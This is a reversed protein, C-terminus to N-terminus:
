RRVEAPMEAVAEVPRRMDDLQIRDPQAGPAHLLEWTTRRMLTQDERSLSVGLLNVLKRTAETSLGPHVLGALIGAGDRAPMTGAHMRRAATHLALIRPGVAPSAIPM